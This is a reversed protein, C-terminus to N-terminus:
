ARGRYKLRMNGATDYVWEFEPRTCRMNANALYEASGYAPRSPDAQRRQFFPNDAEAM